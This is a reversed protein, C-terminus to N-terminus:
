NCFSISHVRVAVGVGTLELELESVEDLINEVDELEPPVVTNIIM